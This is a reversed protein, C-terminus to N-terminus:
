PQIQLRLTMLTVCFSIGYNKSLNKLAQAILLLRRMAYDLRCGKGSFCDWSVRSAQKREIRNEKSCNGSRLAWIWRRSCNPLEWKPSFKMLAPIPYADKITVASLYRFDCCFRLQGKKKAM